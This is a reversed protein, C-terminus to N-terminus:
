DTLVEYWLPARVCMPIGLTDCLTVFAPERDLLEVDQLREAVASDWASWFDRLGSLEGVFYRCQDRTPSTGEYRYYAM